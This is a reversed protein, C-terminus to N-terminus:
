NAVNWRYNRLGKGGPKRNSRGTDRRSSLQLVLPVGPRVGSLRRIAARRHRGGFARALPRRSDSKEQRHRASRRLLGSGTVFRNSVFRGNRPSDPVRNSNSGSGTEYPRSSKFWRGKAEWDVM